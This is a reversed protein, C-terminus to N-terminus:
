NLIVALNVLSDTTINKIYLAGINSSYFIKRGDNHIMLWQIKYQKGSMMTAKFNLHALSYQKWNEGSRFSSEKLILTSEILEIAEVRLDSLKKSIEM